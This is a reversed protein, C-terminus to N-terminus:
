VGQQHRWIRPTSPVGGCVVNSGPRSYWKLPHDWTFSTDLSPGQESMRCSSLTSLQSDGCRCLFPWTFVCCPAQSPPRLLGWLQGCPWRPMWSGPCHSVLMLQQLRRAQPGRSSARLLHAYSGLGDQLTSVPCLSRGLVVWHAFM